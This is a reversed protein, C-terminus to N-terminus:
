GLPRCISAPPTLRRIAELANDLGAPSLIPSPYVRDGAPSQYGDKNSRRSEGGALIQRGGPQKRKTNSVKSQRM